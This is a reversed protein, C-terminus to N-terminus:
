KTLTNLQQIISTDKAILYLGKNAEIGEQWKKQHESQRDKGAKVEVAIFLGNALILVDAVGKTSKTPMYQGDRYTGRVDVKSASYGRNKAWLSILDELFNSYSKWNYKAKPIAYVPIKSNAYQKDYERNYAQKDKISLKM